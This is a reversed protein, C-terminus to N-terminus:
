TRTIRNWKFCHVFRWFKGHAIFRCCFDQQLAFLSLSLSLSCFFRRWFDQTDQYKRSTRQSILNLLTKNGFRSIFENQRRPFFFLANTCVTILNLDCHKPTHASSWFNSVFCFLLFFRILNFYYLFSDLVKNLMEAKRGGAQRVSLMSVGLREIHLKNSGQPHVSHQRKIKKKQQWGFM